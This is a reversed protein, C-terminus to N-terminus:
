KEITATSDDDEGKNEKKPKSGQMFLLMVDYRDSFSKSVNMFMM